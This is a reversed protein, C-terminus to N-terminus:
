DHPDHAEHVGEVEHVVHIPRRPSDPRDGGYCGSSKRRNRPIERKCHEGRTEASRTQAEQRVVESPGGPDEQAVTAAQQDPEHDGCREHGNRSAIVNPPRDHQSCSQEGAQRDQIGGEHHDRAAARPDWEQRSTAIVQGVPEEGAQARRACDRDRKGADLRTSPAM